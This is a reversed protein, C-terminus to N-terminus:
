ANRGMAVLMVLNVDLISESKLGMIVGRSEMYNEDSKQLNGIQGPWFLKFPQKGNSNFSFCVRM